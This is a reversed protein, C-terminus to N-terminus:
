QKTAPGNVHLNGHKVPHKVADTFVYIKQGKEDIHSVRCIGDEVMEEFAMECIKEVYAEHEEHTMSRGEAVVLQELAALEELIKECMTKNTM